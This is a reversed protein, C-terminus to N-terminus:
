RGGERREEPRSQQPPPHPAAQPQPMRPQEFHPAPPAQAHPPQAYAPQPRPQPPAQYHPQQQMQYRPQQPVQYHPQAQPQRVQPAPPQGAIPTHQASAPMQPHQANAPAGGPAPHRPANFPVASGRSVAGAEHFGGPRPTAFVAPRGHNVSALQSRDSRAAQEHQVQNATPEFHREHEAEREQQSPQAATGGTGGNYSVRNVTVNNVVTTNYTNHIEAQNVNSVARNYNFEGDRWYGGQYGVGTYGYGYNVGGYFGVHPGWYGAHWAYLGESWGWYGPTWLLGPAPALVWTGPVWYYGYPGYAWYGPTWIYGPAPCVPQAYVPLAPPAINISIFVGAQGALPVLVLALLLLRIRAIM